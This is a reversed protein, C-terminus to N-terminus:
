KEGSAQTHKNLAEVKVCSLIAPAHCALGFAAASPFIECGHAFYPLPEITATGRAFLFAPCQARGQQEIDTAILDAPNRVGDV